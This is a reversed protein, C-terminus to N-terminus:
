LRSAIIDNLVEVNIIDSLDGLNETEGRAIKELVSKVIKGTRTRPLAKVFQIKSPKAFAGFNRAVHQSIENRTNQENVPTEYTLVFAYIDSGKVEDPYGVVASETVLTHENIISELTSPAFEHNSVVLTDQLRGTIKYNGEIDREAQDRTFFKDKYKSFYLKKYKEHKGYISRAMGPWPKKICLAGEAHLEQIENGEEDVLCAEIGFFPKTVYSAKTPTIGALASIMIGGSETEYWTDVIPCNGKGIKDNYWQWAEENLMGGVSGLVKLSSLDYKEVYEPSQTALTRIATPATYFHTIKHKEIINWFRGYDPFSPAGEFMVSTIGSLLPAYVGYTMGALWGIDATGFYITEENVQFVNKFTDEAYVMYGGNSHVIGKPNGSAEATYMIFLPDESNVEEADCHAEAVDMLESWYFDRGEQMFVPNHTREYVLVTEIKTEQKLTEDVIAKLDTFKNGRNAGDTTIVMKSDSNVIRYQLAKSSYGAFVVNHVAGIRSCALISIQLEPIMPMYICVTDGKKIGKAKLVNALKCVETFLEKYSLIKNPENPNNPEFIIAPKDGYKEINRDLCNETINLKGGVFWKFDANEFDADLVIDWKKKWVFTEAIDEWYDKPSEISKQYFKEFDSVSAAVYKDISTKVAETKLGYVGIGETKLIQTLEDVISPDDITSPITFEKGDAINRILRRLIKGSRTKPLRNVQIARSLSSIAGIEQRVSKKLQAEITAYNEIEGKTVVVAFPVQGKVNDEIGMVACEAIHPNRSIVEEMESTSLRHGAVNIVDDLRGTIFFYGEEDKYAGDGTFYYGEYQSLYSEKYRDDANWLTPLTGPPLPLKIVAAGEENEKMVEGEPSLIQVDYGPVPKGASGPKISFGGNYGMFNGLIAWATETQWWHDIVPRELTEMMWELTAADCREGAVFLYKLSSIDRNKILEGQPDEKRIVRFATPASFISKVKYEEIIRWFSGADPTKIPKGEYVITTTRNIMPAYVIYSHGVIWGFDSATFMVEGPKTDYISKMSYKLAVAYGGTDHIVGKPKGTTGSTYLIFLPHTAEVPLYTEPESLNILTNFDIDYDKEPTEAGLKRNYLIVFDPKHDAIEIAKDVMPKYPILKEIEKGSTASIIVKPKCDDIRVALEKPAFGGFVVSHIAGIRACALMAMITQPIMPMYIIVTDGKKVGLRKLGGALKEVKHKLQNYTIKEKNNTVPSDYIIATQEGFGDEIHKDICLYSMNIMGDKYWEDLNKENKSHIIEPKKLWAIEDAQTKWFELPNLLSEEKITNYNEM